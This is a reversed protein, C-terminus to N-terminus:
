SVIANVLFSEGGPLVLQVLKLGVTVAAGGLMAICRFTPVSAGGAAQKHLQPQLGPGTFGLKKSSAKTRFTKLGWGRPKRTMEPCRAFQRM